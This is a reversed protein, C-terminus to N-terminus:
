FVFSSLRAVKPAPSEIEPSFLALRLEQEATFKVELKISRVNAPGNLVHANQELVMTVFAIVAETRTM